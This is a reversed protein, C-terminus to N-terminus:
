QTFGFMMFFLVVLTLGVLSYLIVLLTKKFLNNEKRISAVGLGELALFFLQAIFGM